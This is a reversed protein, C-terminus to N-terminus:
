GCILRRKTLFENNLDFIRKEKEKLGKPKIGERKRKPKLDIKDLGVVQRPTYGTYGKINRDDRSLITSLALGTEIHWDFASKTRGDATILKNPDGRM